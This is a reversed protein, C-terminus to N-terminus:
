NIVPIQLCVAGVSQPICTLPACCPIGAPACPQGIAICSQAKAATPAILSSVLPLAIASALGVNRIVERRSMGKFAPNSIANDQLLGDAKFQDIALWVMNETVETGLRETLLVSIQKVSRQGDCLHWILSSTENLCFAKSKKLDYVLTEGAIEQTLIESTRVCPRTEFTM